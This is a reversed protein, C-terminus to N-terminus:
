HQGRRDIPHGFPMTSGKCAQPDDTRIGFPMTSEMIVMSGDDLLDFLSIGSRVEEIPFKVAQWGNRIAITGDYCDFFVELYKWFLERIADLRNDLHEMESTFQCDTRHGRGTAPCATHHEAHLEEMKRVLVMQVMFLKQLEDPIPGLVEEDGGAEKDPLQRDDETIEQQLDLIWQPIPLMATGKAQLLLIYQSIVEKQLLEFM